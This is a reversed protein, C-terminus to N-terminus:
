AHGLDDNECHKAPNRDLTKEIPAPKAAPGKASGGGKDAMMDPDGVGSWALLTAMVADRFAVVVEVM